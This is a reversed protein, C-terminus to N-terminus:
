IQLFYDFNLERKFNKSHGEKYKYIFRGINNGNGSIENRKRKKNM